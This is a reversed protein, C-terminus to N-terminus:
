GSEHLSITLVRPDSYFIHQVGDGHHTDVDLYAVRKAGNRLLWEIAFAPDDYICFGSARNPMAHHLGGAPNFAHATRGTWVAQAAAVSAWCVELSADHMGAFVPNDGYGLGYRLDGRPDPDASLRRVAEVYDETHLRLVDDTTFAARRLTQVHDADTLGCARILDVTLEVRVPKLPHDPGFDYHIFDDNWILASPEPM